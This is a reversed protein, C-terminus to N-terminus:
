RTTRVWKSSQTLSIPGWDTAQEKSLITIAQSAADVQDDNKGNPFFRWELKFDEVWPQKDPNPLWIDGAQIQPAVAGARVEKSGKPEVLILGPIETKLSDTLAAGNAKKEVYKGMAMPYRITFNKIAAGQGTFGIRARFQDVLYKRAGKRAWLQGVVYSGEDTIEFTLDWSQIVIDMQDLDLEDYYRWWSDEVIIGGAPAPRQQLQGAAAISGLDKEAEKVEKEGFRAEWLLEGETNRPDSWGIGTVKKPLAQDKVREIEFRAPLKLHEWGGKALVHGSLDDEHLRQMIIIKSVTKPDNARGSMSEDWWELTKEREVDSKAEMVNHPDDCMIYDGGEGTVGGGVSTAIRYGAETNDYRMKANQDGALSWKIGFQTRYWPSEILRRTKVSDRTSLSQAYASTLFKKGPKKIWVWAPFMVSVITSKAHRPPINILLNRIQGYYVGELHECMAGVHWGDVYPDNPEVVHWASKVFDHFREAARRM